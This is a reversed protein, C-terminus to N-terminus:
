EEEEEVPTNRHRIYNITARYLVALPLAGLVTIFFLLAPLERAGSVVTAIGVALTPLFIIWLGILIMFSPREAGRRFMHGEARIANVPDLEALADIPAGCKPCFQDDSDPMPEFCNVCIDPGLTEQETSEQSTM